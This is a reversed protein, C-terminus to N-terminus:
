KVVVKYNAVANAFQVNVMYIGDSLDDIAINAVKGNGEITKVVKGTINVITITQIDEVSSINLKDYAPNPYVKTLEAINDIVGVGVIAENSTNSFVSLVGLTDRTRVTYTYTGNAVDEQVLETATVGAEAIAGNRYVDYNKAADNASWTVTVKNGDVAAAVDNAAAPRAFTTVVGDKALQIAGFLGPNNWGQDTIDRWTIQDRPEDAIDRDCVKVDFGMIDGVTPSVQDYDFANSFPIALELVYNSGEVVDMGWTGPRGTGRIDTVDTWWDKEYNFITSDAYTGAKQNFADLYVTTNDDEWVNTSGHYLIDDNERVLVYLNNIDWKLQFAASCDAADTINTKDIVADLSNVPANDFAWDRVKGDMAKPFDKTAVVTGDAALQIEGWKRPNDWGGDTYDRFTIQDRTEADAPGDCDSLKVDFGIVDSVQATKDFQSWAVALELTYGTGNVTDYVYHGGPSAWTGPGVRGGMAGDKKWWNLEWYVQTADVFNPTAKNFADLYICANDYLYSDGTGGYMTDDKVKLLYYLSDASWLVQITGSLDNADTINDDKIVTTLPVVPAKAWVADSGDGDVIPGTTLQGFALSSICTLAFFTVLLQLYNRM